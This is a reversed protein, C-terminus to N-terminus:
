VGHDRKSHSLPDRVSMRANKPARARLDCKTPRLQKAAKLAMGLATSKSSSQVSSSASRILIWVMTNGTLGVFVCFPMYFYYLNQLLTRTDGPPREMAQGFLDFLLSTQNGGFLLSSSSAYDNSAHGLASANFFWRQLLPKAESM